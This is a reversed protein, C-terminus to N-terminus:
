PKITRRSEKNLRGVTRWWVLKLKAVPGMLPILIKAEGKM